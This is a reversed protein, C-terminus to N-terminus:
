SSVTMMWPEGGDERRQLRGQRADIVKGEEIDMGQVSPPANVPGRPVHIQMQM